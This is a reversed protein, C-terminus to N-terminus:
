SRQTALGACSVGLRRVRSNGLVTQVVELVSALIENADQEVQELGYSQLSVDCSASTLVKGNENLALARTSLTGQDIM